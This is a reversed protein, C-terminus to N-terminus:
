FKMAARFVVTRPALIAAPSLFQQLTAKAGTTPDTFTTAETRNRVSWVTDANLLNDFDVSAEISRAASFRFVKGVRLDIKTLPDIRSNGLPELNIIQTTAFGVNRAIQRTVPLGQQVSVNASVILDQWPLIYMGTMKFQNPRDPANTDTNNGNANILLNPSTNVSVNDIRSKSLTYGALM